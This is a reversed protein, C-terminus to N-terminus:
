GMGYGTGVVARPRAVVKVSQVKQSGPFDAAEVLPEATGGIAEM